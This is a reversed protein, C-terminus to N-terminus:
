RMLFMVFFFVMRLMMELYMLLWSRRNEIVSEPDHETWAAWGIYATLLAFLHYWRTLTPLVGTIIYAEALAHPLVMFIIAISIAHQSGWDTVFNHVGGARDGEVDPLDKFVTAGFTWVAFLSCIALITPNPTAIVMWGALPGLFGRSLAITLNNVAYRNKFRPGASYCYALVMIGIVAFFFSLNILVARTAAIFWLIVGISGAEAESVEGSPIPRYPKNIRDIEVDTLQNLANSGANLLVLTIGGYFIKFGNDWDLREGGTYLLAMTGFLVGGIFPALLTFPRILDIYARIRRALITPKDYSDKM